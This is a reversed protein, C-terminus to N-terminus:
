KDFIVAKQMEEVRHLHLSTHLDRHPNEYYAAGIKHAPVRYFGGCCPTVIHGDETPALRIRVRERGEFINGLYM